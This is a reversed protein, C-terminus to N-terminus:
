NHRQTVLLVLHKLPTPQPALTHLLALAEDTLQKALHQSQELGLLAPFTSKHLAADAGGQKGLQTTNGIVDLIDDQIQFALGINDGIQKIHELTALETVGAAIAGMELAATILRGTKLQHIQTLQRQSLVQNEAQIDLMQGAVMGNAGAAKALLGLMALRQTHSFQGQHVLVDFALTQLADGALIATAEDFAKHCSPQGRRLDDDDMAPLDDHILSYTHLLEIACAPVLANNDPLANSNPLDSNDPSTFLQCAAMCLLPRLRKGGANVSYQMAEALRPALSAKFLGSLCRNIHQCTQHHWQEFPSTTM